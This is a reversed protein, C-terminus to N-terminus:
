KSQPEAAPNATIYEDVGNRFENDDFMERIVRKWAVQVKPSDLFQQRYNRPTYGPDHPREAAFASVMNMFIYTLEDSEIGLKQMEDLDVGHIKWLKPNERLQEHTQQLLTLNFGRGQAFRDTEALQNQVFIAVCAIVASVIASLGASVGIIKQWNPEATDSVSHKTDDTSNGVETSEPKAQDRSEPEM